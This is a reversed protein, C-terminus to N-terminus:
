TLSLLYMVRCTFDLINGQVFEKMVLADGSLFSWIPFVTKSDGAIFCFYKDHDPCFFPCIFLKSVTNDPEIPV